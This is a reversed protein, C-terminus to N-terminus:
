CRDPHTVMQAIAAKGLKVWIWRPRSDFGRGLAELASMTGELSVKKKKKEFSSIFIFDQYQM